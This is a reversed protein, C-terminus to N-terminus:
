YEWTQINWAMNSEPAATAPGVIGAAYAFPQARFFLSAAPLQEAYVQLAQRVLSVREGHDLTQNFGNVIRDYDPNSWAGRNGGQWRNDPKPIQGSTLNNMAPEGMNTNSTQMTPFSARVQANQAQAAPVVRQQVDFGAAKLQEAMVLIERVNDPDEKSVLELSVRGDPGAFIGDSDKRYGADGMRREVARLDYPYTPISDDVAAGWKSGTWIMSDAFIAEGAYVADSIEQKNFSQAIAKRVREDLIARPTVLEPRLQFATYRWANPWRLVTGAKSEQWQQKLTEAAQGISSDTAVQADGALLAAVVVNQDASFRLELRPIKPRGLAYWVFREAEIFSGPEWRYVRYPRLGVYERTWFHQSTVADGGRHSVHDLAPGLVHRPFPPFELDYTALIDADPFPVKWHIAFHTPDIATVDDIARFPPQGALALEPTSYVSWAFVYDDSTFPEGDHWTLGARLAYTTLMTGDPFVKWGDTNLQPLAELLEPIPEGRDNILAPLANFVRTPIHLGTGKQIFPRTAISAPEVRVYIVLPRSDALDGTPSPHQAVDQGRPACAALWALWALLLPRAPWAPPFPRPRRARKREEIRDMKWEM